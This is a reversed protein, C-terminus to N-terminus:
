KMQRFVANTDNFVPDYEFWIKATSANSITYQNTWNGTQTGSAILMSVNTAEANTISLLVSETVTNSKGTYGTIFIPTHTVYYQRASFLPLTNTPGSWAHPTNYLGDIVTVNTVTQNKVTLNTIYANSVTIFDVNTIAYFYNTTFFQNTTFFNTTFFYQNTVWFNSVITDNSVYLNTQFYNSVYTDQVTVNTITVPAFINTTVFNTQFFNSIYTDNFVNTNFYNSLYVSTYFLNTSYLFFNTTFSIPTVAVTSDGIKIVGPTNTDLYLPTLAQLQLGPMANILDQLQSWTMNQNTVGPVTILFLDSGNLTATNPFDSVKIVTAAPSACVLLAVSMSILFRKM